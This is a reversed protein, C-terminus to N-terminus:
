RYQAIVNDIYADLTETSIETNDKKDCLYLTEIVKLKEDMDMFPSELLQAAQEIAIQEAEDMNPSGGLLVDFGDIGIWHAEYRCNNYM